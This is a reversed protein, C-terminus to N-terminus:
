QKYTFIVVCFVLKEVQNGPSSMERLRVTEAFKRFIRGFIQLFQENVSFKSVVFNPPFAQIKRTLETRM